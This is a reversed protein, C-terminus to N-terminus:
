SIAVDCFRNETGMCIQNGCCDSNVQCSAYRPRCCRHGGLEPVIDCHHGPCCTEKDNKPNCRTRHKECKPKRKRKRRKKNKRRAVVGPAVGLGLLSGLMGAMARGCRRRTWADFRAGDM